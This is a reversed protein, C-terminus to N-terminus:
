RAYRSLLEATCLLLLALETLPILIVAAHEAAPVGRLFRASFRKAAYRIPLLGILAATIPLWHSKLLYRMAGGPLFGNMGILSGICSFYSTLTDGQMVAATLLLLFGAVPPVLIQPIRVGRQLLMREAALLLAILTGLFLGNLTNLCLLGATGLVMLMRASYAANDLPLGDRLVLRRMWASLTPLRRSFLGAISDTHPPVSVLGRTEYGLLLATGHGAALLGRLTWLIGCAFILMGCWADAATVIAHQALIERHLSLVPLAILVSDFLGATLYMAGATVREASPKRQQMIRNAQETTVLPGAFLRPLACCLCLHASLAPLETQGRAREQQCGASQMACLLLPLIQVADPLLWRGTILILLQVAYGSFLVAFAAAKKEKLVPQIRLFLWGATVSTLMLLLEPIGGAAYGFALGGLTLDPLTYRPTLFAAPILTLPLIMLLVPLTILTLQM